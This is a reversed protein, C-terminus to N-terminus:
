LPYVHKSGERTASVNTPMDNEMFIM